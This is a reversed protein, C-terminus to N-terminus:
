THAHTGSHPPPWFVVEPTPGSRGDQKQSLIEDRSNESEHRVEGAGM